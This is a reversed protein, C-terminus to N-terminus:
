VLSESVRGDAREVHWLKVNEVFMQSDRRKLLGEPQDAKM